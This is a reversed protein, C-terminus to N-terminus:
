TGDGDSFPPRMYSVNSEVTTRIKVVECPNVSRGNGGQVGRFGAQRKGDIEWGRVTGRSRAWTERRINVITDAYQSAPARLRSCAEPIPPM